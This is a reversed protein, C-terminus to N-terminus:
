KETFVDLELHCLSLNIRKFLKHFSLFCINYPSKLTNISKDSKHETNDIVIRISINLIIDLKM